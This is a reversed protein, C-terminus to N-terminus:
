RNGCGLQSILENGQRSEIGPFLALSVAGEVTELRSLQACFHAHPPLEADFLFTTVNAGDSIAKFFGMGNGEIDSGRGDDVTIPGAVVYLTSGLAALENIAQDLGSWAGVRLPQPLATMNSLLNLESWYPTGAFSTLPALRGRDESVLQVESIRYERDQASSLDPQVFNAAPSSIQLRVEADLLEDDLWYRPLLSAVGVSDPLVRYAVWEVAGTQPVISAAYLHHLVVENDQESVTPCAKLCHSIHVQQANVWNPLLLCVSVWPIFYKRM